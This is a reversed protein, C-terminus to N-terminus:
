FRKYMCERWFGKQHKLQRVAPHHLLVTLFPCAQVNQKLLHAYRM